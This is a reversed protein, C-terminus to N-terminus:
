FPWAKQFNYSDAGGGTIETKILHCVRVSRTNLFKIPEFGTQLDGYLGPFEICARSTERAFLCVFVGYNWRNSSHNEDM